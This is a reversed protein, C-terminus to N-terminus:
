TYKNIINLIIHKIPNFFTNTINGTAIIKIHNFNLVEDIIQNIDSVTINRYHKNLDKLTTINSHTTLQTSYYEAINYTDEYDIAKSNIINNKLIQLVDSNIKSIKLDILNTIINELAISLNNSTVSTYISLYGAEEYFVTESSVDYVIGLKDRLLVFLRSSMNGAIHLSLIDLGYKKHSFTSYAPFTICIYINEQKKKSIIKFEPETIKLQYQILKTSPINNRPFNNFYKEIIEKTNKPFKGSIALSMNEPTYYKKYIKRILEPSFHKVNNINGITSLKLPSDSFLIENMYDDILDSPNDLSKHIEEIVVKKEGEVDKLNFSSNFLMESLINLVTEFYELQYSLKFHYVTIHKM